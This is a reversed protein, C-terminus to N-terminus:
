QVVQANGREWREQRECHRCYKYTRLDEPTLSEAERWHRVLMGAIHSRSDTNCRESIYARRHLTNTNLNILYRLM